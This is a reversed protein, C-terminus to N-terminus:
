PRVQHQLNHTSSSEARYRASEAALGLQKDAKSPFVWTHM